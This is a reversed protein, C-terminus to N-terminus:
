QMPNRAIMFQIVGAILIIALLAMVAIVPAFPVWWPWGLNPNFEMNAALVVCTIVSGIFSYKIANHM